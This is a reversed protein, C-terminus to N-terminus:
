KKINVLNTNYIEIEYMNEKKEIYVVPKNNCNFLIPSKKFIRQSNNYGIKYWILAYIIQFLVTIFLEKM